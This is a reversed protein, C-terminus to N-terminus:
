DRGKHFSCLTLAIGSWSFCTWETSHASDRTKAWALFCKYALLALTFVRCHLTATKTFLLMISLPTFYFCSQCLTLLELPRLTESQVHLLTVDKLNTPRTCLDGILLARLFHCSTREAICSSFLACQNSAGFYTSSFYVYTLISHMTHSKM